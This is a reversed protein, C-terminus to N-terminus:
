QCPSTPVGWPCVGTAFFIKEANSYTDPKNEMNSCVRYGGNEQMYGCLNYAAYRFHLCVLSNFMKCLIVLPNLFTLFSSSILTTLETSQVTGNRQLDANRFRKYDCIKM